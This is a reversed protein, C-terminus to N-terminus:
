KPAGHTARYVRHAGVKESTVVLGHKNKLAGSLAGRVSHPQWGTAEVLQAITTGGPQRLLATM